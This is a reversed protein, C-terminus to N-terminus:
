IITEPPIGNLPRYLHAKPAFLRSPCNEMVTLGMRRVLDWIIQANLNSYDLKRLKAYARFVPDVFDNHAWNLEDITLQLLEGLDEIVGTRAFEYAKELHEDSISLHVAADFYQINQDKLANLLDSQQSASLHPGPGLNHPEAIPRDHLVPGPLVTIPAIAPPDNNAKISLM